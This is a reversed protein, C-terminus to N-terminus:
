PAVEPYLAGNGPRWGPGLIHKHFWVGPSTTLRVFQQWLNDPIGEYGMQYGDTWWFSLINSAILGRTEYHVGARWFRYANVWRKEPNPSNQWRSIWLPAPAIVKAAPTEGEQQAVPLGIPLANPLMRQNVGRSPDTIQRAVPLGPPRVAARSPLAPPPVTTGINTRTGPIPPPM